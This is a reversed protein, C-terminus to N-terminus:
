GSRTGSGTGWRSCLRGRTIFSFMAPAVIVGSFLPIFFWVRKAFWGLGIRSAAALVLTLAYLGLLVPIHRVLGTAILLGLM